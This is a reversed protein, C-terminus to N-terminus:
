CLVLNLRTVLAVRLWLFLSFHDFIPSLLWSLRERAHFEQSYFICFFHAQDLLSWFGEQWYLITTIMFFPTTWRMWGFWHGVGNQPWNTQKLWWSAETIVCEAVLNLALSATTASTRVTGDTAHVRFVLSYIRYHWILRIRLKCRFAKITHM